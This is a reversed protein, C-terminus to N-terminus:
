DEPTFDIDSVDYFSPRMDNLSSLDYRTLHVSPPLTTSKYHCKLLCNYFLQVKALVQDETYKGKFKQGFIEVLNAFGRSNSKYESTLFDLEEYTFGMETEDAQELQDKSSPKLEATPAQDAIERLLSFDSETNAMHTLISKVDHKVLSGLVNIDGSSNDYRSYYGRVVESCNGTAMVILFGKLKYKIPIVQSTLYSIVLRTRAQVGQLALDERLTGGEGEFRLKMGLVSEELNKIAEYISQIPVDFHNSGLRRALRHSLDKTKVSFNMPMYATFLIKGIMEEVTKFHFGDDGIVHCFLQKVEDNSEFIKRCMHYIVCVTASSDAGGSLPVFFGSAGTKLIQNWLNTAMADLLEETETTKCDSAKLLGSSDIELDNNAQTVSLTKMEADSYSFRPIPAYVEGSRAIYCGGEHLLITGDTGSFNTNIYIKKNGKSIGRLGAIQESNRHLEFFRKNALNIIDNRDLHRRMSPLSMEEEFISFYNINEVSVSDIGFKCERQDLLRAVSEPLTYGTVDGSYSSFFRSENWFCDPNFAQKPRILEIRNDKLYIFCNYLKDDKIVPMGVEVLMNPPYNQALIDKIVRWCRNVSDLEKFHDGSGIGMTELQLGIRINSQDNAAQRISRMINNRNRRFAMSHQNLCSVTLRIRQEM